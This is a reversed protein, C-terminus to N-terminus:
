FRHGSVNQAYEQRIVSNYEIDGALSERAEESVIPPSKVAIHLLAPQQWQMASGSGEGEVATFQFLTCLFWMNRFLAVLESSLRAITSADFVGHSLLSDIPLLLSALQEVMDDTKVQQNTAAINQIAVGKDGFLTLLEKLYVMAFEPRRQIEKALRTQAALVMNNSFRPDDPNASRNIASFARIIDVFSSESAALALDVLNNAIAAELTPEASRLRQLLMSITLRTVEEVKFELALRTVVAITSIGVLRKEEESMGRLGAEMSYLTSGHDSASVYQSIDALQTSASSDAIEKSAAAIYNLLSYMNSMM